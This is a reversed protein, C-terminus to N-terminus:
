SESWHGAPVRGVYAEPDPRGFRDAWCNLGGMEYGERYASSFRQPLYGLAVILDVAERFSHVTHWEYPRFDRSFAIEPQAGRAGTQWTVQAHDSDRYVYHTSAREAGSGRRWRVIERMLAIDEVTMRPETETDVTLGEPLTPDV